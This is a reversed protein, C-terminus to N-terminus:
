DRLRFRQIKGTTTKPLEPVFEIWRPVKYHAQKARIFDKLEDETAAAGDRLIVYAKPKIMNQEDPHGVVACELVSGHESITAEVETPSVWIGGVRLMDDTRGVHFYNGDEDKYFNDGTHVGGRGFVEKTKEPKNWYTDAATPGHAILKGVTGTPVPNGDDDVLDGGFGEVIKGCSGKIAHGPTNLMFMHLMETTGVGDLIEVGTYEKWREYLVPPLLEGGSVCFRLRSCADRVVNRDFDREAIQLMAAFLTPVSMVITPKHKLWLEWCKDPAIPGSNVINTAACRFPFYVQNGMGYAFFMKPPCFVVDDRNVGQAAIGFLETAWYMHAHTHLVGKPDGTSGSSYLWFATDDPAADHTDLAGSQDAIEDDMFLFGHSKQGTVVIHEVSRFDAQIEKIIPVLSQDIVVLKAGSDNVYYLYDKPQLWTNIPIPVAGMKMAGFLTGPFDPGDMVSMMIRDGPQVGLTKIFNGIKCTRTYLEGYTVVTGAADDLLQAPRDANEPSLCEAFVYDAVNRIPAEGSVIAENSM